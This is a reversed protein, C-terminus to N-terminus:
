RCATLFLAEASDLGVGSPHDQFLGDESCALAREPTAGNSVSAVVEPEKEAWNLKCVM